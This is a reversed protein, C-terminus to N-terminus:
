QLAPSEAPRSLQESRRLMRAATWGLVALAIIALVAQEAIGGWGARVSSILGVVCYTIVAGAALGFPVPGGYEPRTPPVLSSGRRNWGILIVLMAAWIAAMIVTSVWPPLGSLNEIIEFGGAAVLVLAASLLTARVSARPTVRQRGRLRIAVLVAIAVLIATAILRAPPAVFRQPDSLVSFAATVAAALVFIVLCVVIGARGLWPATGREPDGRGRWAEVIAIPSSISWVVHLTIVFITWPAGIGLGPVFGREILSLGLYHPNFLSQTVLGEEFIGYGLALLLIGAWGLRLRRALERILVAAMGYFAVFLMFSGVQQGAPELGALYQDGLLFEAVFASLAALM